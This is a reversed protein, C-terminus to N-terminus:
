LHWWRFQRQRLRTSILKKEKHVFYGLFKESSVGFSVGFPENQAREVGKLYEGWIM